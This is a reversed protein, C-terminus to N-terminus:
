KAKTLVYNCIEIDLPKGLQIQMAIKAELNELILKQTAEDRQRVMARSMPQSFIQKAMQNHPMLEVKSVEFEKIDFKESAFLHSATEFDALHHKSRFDKFETVGHERLTSEWIDFYSSNEAKGLVSVIFVATDKMKRRVANLEKAPSSVVNLILHSMVIDYHNDPISSLVEADEIIVKVRNNLFRGIRGKTLAIMQDSIDTLVIENLQSQYNALLYEAFLGSGCGVELFSENGALQYAPFHKKSLHIANSVVHKEIQDSYEAAFANWSKKLVETSPIKVSYAIKGIRNM